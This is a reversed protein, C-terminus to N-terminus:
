ILNLDDTANLETLNLTSNGVKSGFFTLGSLRDRLAKWGLDLSEKVYKSRSSKPRVTERRARQFDSWELVVVGRRLLTDGLGTVGGRAQV